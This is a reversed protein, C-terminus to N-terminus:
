ETRFISDGSGNDVSSTYVVVAGDGSLVSFRLAVNRLDEGRATAPLRSSLDTLQVFEGAGVPVEFSTIPGYTLSRSDGYLATVRVIVDKGATEVLGINTRFTGPKGAGITALSSVELGGIQKSQGLRLANSSALAPVGTGFSGPNQGVTAFTRSTAAVSGAHPRYTLYGLSGEGAGFLSGVIDDYDATFGPLLTLSKEFTAGDRRLFTLTGKAEGSGVNVLSADTRFFTDNAGRVSGAVPVVLDVDRPFGLMQSWDVVSWFDGSEQDVPTAYAVIRGDSSADNTVVASVAGEPVSDLLRVMRFADVSGDHASVLGASADYFEIRYTAPAGETEQVFLNTRTTASKRLGTLTLRGGARVSRDSRFVPIVTGYTGAPNSVNFINAAVFITNAQNTRVQLTGTVQNGGFVTTVVDALKVGEGPSVPALEVSSSSGGADASPTFFLRLDTLPNTGFANTLSIDSVFLGVGGVVHGVGPVFLVTENAGIPPISGTGTAPKITDAITVPAAATGPADFVGRSVASRVAGVGGEGTAYVLKLTGSVTGSPAVADPRRARDVTFTVPASGGAPITVLGSQPVIFGVDSVVIGSLTGTGSNTFTVSGTPNETVPGTVDIRKTDAEAAATGSQEGVSLLRVPIDIVVAVGSATIRASGEYAGAPRALGTITVYASDGPELFAESQDQTFFDGTQTITLTTATDGFNQVVYIDEAGGTNESQVLGFPYGTVVPLPPSIVAATTVGSIAATAPSTVTNKQYGEPFTVTTITFFYTTLPALEDVLVTSFDKDPTTVVKLPSGGPTSSVAIRYGGPDYVYAIRDWSLVIADSKAASVQPNTVTVTQTGAWDNGEDKADLFAKVAPDSTFLGNYGFGSQGDLLSTLNLIEAPVPGVLANYELDLGQLSSLLGLEPPITGTLVNSSLGLYQLSALNGLTSPITGSLRNFRLNLFEVATLNGLEPPVPGVLENAEVRLFTLNQLQGLQPPIVGTLRNYEVDLSLLKALNGLEPPISGTLENHSLGIYDLNALSGLSPPIPGSFANYDLYLQALNALNGLGPPIPGSIENDYLFLSRLEPLNAISSPLTGTLQNNNLWLITLKTLNGLEPPISGSLQNEGLGLFELNTLNGLSAPVTGTLQNGGLDLDRLLPLSGLGPPISGTLQNGGLTLGELNELNTLESPITGTLQNFSLSLYRLSDVSGLSVPIPGTLQNGELLLGELLPLNGLAAPIPGTLENDHLWLNVLSTLQALEAPIAGSLSNGSLRLDELAGLQSLSAPIPGSLQNDDLGLAALNTLQTLAVPITGTLQNRSLYVSEAEALAGLEVPIGGTLANDALDLSRVSALGGLSPPIPGSLGASALVLEELQSLNGISAPITGSLPNNFLYLLTLQSLSGLSAPITGTFQNNDLYLLRLSSLSGLSAPLPGSLANGALYLSTLSPFSGIASPLTGSLNNDGLSIEVVATQDDNCNVGYWTCETGAGGLWSSSDSWSAGGTADYIAVLANRESSPIAAQVPVHLCMVAVLLVFRGPFRM